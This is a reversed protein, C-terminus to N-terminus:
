SLQMSKISDWHFRGHANGSWYHRRDAHEVIYPGEFGENDTNVICVRYSGHTTVIDVITNVAGKFAMAFKNM